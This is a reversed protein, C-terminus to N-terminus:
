QAQKPSFLFAIPPLLKRACGSIPGKLNLSPYRQTHRVRNYDQHRTQFLWKRQQIALASMCVSLIYKYKTSKAVSVLWTCTYVYTHINIATQRAGKQCILKMISVSKLMSIFLQFSPLSSVQQTGQFDWTLGCMSKTFIPTVIRSEISHWCNMNMILIKESPNNLSQLDDMM